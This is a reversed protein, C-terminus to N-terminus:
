LTTFWRKITNKHDQIIEATIRKDFEDAEYIWESAKVLYGTLLLLLWVPLMIITGPIKLLLRILRKM